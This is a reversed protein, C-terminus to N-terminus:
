AAAPLADREAGLSRCLEEIRDIMGDMSYSREVLAGAREARRAREAPDRLAEVIAHAMAAPQEPPVLWGTEGDRVVDPTGGVATAVMTKGIAFAELASVPLGERRSPLVVLDAAALYPAPSPQFGAVDVAHGIGLEAIRAVVEAHTSGAGVLQLGAGPVAELVAPFAEVLVDVGKVPDHRALCTVLPRRAPIPTAPEERSSRRLEAVDVGPPIVVIPPATRYRRVGDASADSVATVNARSLRFLVAAGLEEAPEIGHVTALLATRPAAMAAAVTTRVSQAHILDPQFDRCLARLARLWEALTKAGLRRPSVLQHAVGASRAIGALGDPPGHAILTTHGRADLGRAYTLTLRESGGLGLGPTVLLIRM